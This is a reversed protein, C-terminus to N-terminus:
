ELEQPVRFAPQLGRFRAVVEGLGEQPSVQPRWGLNLLKSNEVHFSFHTLIDQETYRVALDTILNQFLNVLDLVSLNATVANFINGQTRGPNHLVFRVAECADQVHIFPRMQDGKGFVTLMHRTGASYAFRNAVADFRMSPAWGFITGFRLVSPQLGREAASMVSQEARLKSQAYAGQPMCPDDELFPGGPGYVATSSALIFRAVGAELCREVLHATGWHNVQQIWASNEFSLPTRVIAALHIVAKVGDLAVQLAAPDLIDGEMFQYHGAEPLNMLAQYGGQQMNDLIRLTVGSLQADQGLLRLLQSGLYGCGGTILIINDEDV